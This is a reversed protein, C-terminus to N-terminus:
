ATACPAANERPSRSKLFGNKKADVILAPLLLVGGPIILAALWLLMRRYDFM